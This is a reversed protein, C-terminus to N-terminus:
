KGSNKGAAIAAEKIETKALELLEKAKQAHGEMDYSNAQQALVIQDISEKTHHYASSLNPHSELPGEKVAPATHACGLFGAMIVAGITGTLLFRVVGVSSKNM